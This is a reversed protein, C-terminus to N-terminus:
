VDYDRQAHQLSFHPAAANRLAALQAEALQKPPPLAAIESGQEECGLATHAVTYAVAVVAAM